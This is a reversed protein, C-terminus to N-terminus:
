PFKEKMWVRWKNKIIEIRFRKDINIKDARERKRFLSDRERLEWKIKALSIRIEKDNKPIHKVHGCHTMKELIFVNEM